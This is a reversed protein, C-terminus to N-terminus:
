DTRTREDNQEKKEFATTVTIDKFDIDDIFLYDAQTGNLKHNAKKCCKNPKGKKYYRFTFEFCLILIHLVSTLSRMDYWLEGSIGWHRSNFAIDFQVKREGLLHNHLKLYRFM